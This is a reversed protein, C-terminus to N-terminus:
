LARKNGDRRAPTSPGEMDIMVEGWCDVDPRRLGLTEQKTPRKRFRQRTLRTEVRSAADKRTGPWRAVRKLITM